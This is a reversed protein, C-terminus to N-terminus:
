KLPERFGTGLLADVVITPSLAPKHPEEVTVVEVAVGRERLRRAVVQGDGGNNGKGCFILVRQRALPKFEHELFEVVRRGANEMLLEGPIGGAIARRDVERMQDATLVKMNHLIHRLCEQRCRRSEDRRM